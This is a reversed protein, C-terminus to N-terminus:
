RVEVDISRTEVPQPEWPRQYIFVIRAHGARRARLSWHRTGPSGPAHGGRVHGNDAIALIDLGESAADDIKWTYGTSPNEKMFIKEVHGIAIRVRDAAQASAPALIMTALFIQCLRKRIM